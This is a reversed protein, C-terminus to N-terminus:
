LVLWLFCMFSYLCHVDSVKQLTFSNTKDPKLLHETNVPVKAAKYQSWHRKKWREPNWVEGDGRCVCGSFIDDVGHQLRLSFVLVEPEQDEGDCVFVCM